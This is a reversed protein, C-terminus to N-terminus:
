KLVGTTNVFYDCDEAWEKVVNGKEDCQAMKLEWKSSTDNWKAEKVETLFTMYKGLGEEEVIDKFYQWIESSGSYFQTWDPKPKWTFQYCVSPIDCACGPYRNELWTGGVDRNKEYCVLEVGLPAELEKRAFHLFDIGSAGAGALIM